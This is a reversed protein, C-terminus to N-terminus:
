CRYIFLPFVNHLLNPISCLLLHMYSFMLLKKREKELRLGTLAMHITGKGTDTM